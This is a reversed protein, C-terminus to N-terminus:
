INHQLQITYLMIILFGNLTQETECLNKHPKNICMVNWPFMELQFLMENSQCQCQQPQKYHQTQTAKEITVCEVLCM